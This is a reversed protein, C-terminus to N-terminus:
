QRHSLIMDVAQALDDVTGDATVTQHTEDSPRYKGTRVQVGKIGCQQAGGVDNVLDDGIMLVEHPQLGMDNLVSQFFLSSPKGFVEAKVDCAYELAKMYAGVDLSLGDTEKYYKGQGLSLLLPNELNELIRFAKNLNQYSFKEAADGILVCNPNTKDVSDFESLLGDCVLLHPRLGRQQLAAVAAPAPSFVESVSIDFGLRQLKAVFTARAEQSENTCFRLKLDSAKLKKLAEVSGSIAVGGGEGCDYLVGCLDLIVGKLSKSCVPWGKAAM